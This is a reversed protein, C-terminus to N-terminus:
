TPHTHQVHHLSESFHLSYRAWKWRAENHRSLDHFYRMDYVDDERQLGSGRNVSLLLHRVRRLEPARKRLHILFLLMNQARHLAVVNLHVTRSMRRIWKSVLSLACGTIGGDTCTLSFVKFLLEPPLVALIGIDLFHPM